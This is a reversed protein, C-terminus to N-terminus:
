KVRLEAQLRRMAEGLADDAAVQIDPRVGVGQWNTNTIPNVSKATVSWLVFHDHIPLYDFPHAGGGSTEGVITARGLAQLDYALAEAASFTKPSILVYVPKDAGFRDGPVYSQTFRQTLKRSPRDYTGTLPQREAEFLYSAVLNAMDGVGGGNQRLDIILGDTHAVTNMAASVTDGGMEIPAFVRLDVLGINDELRAIKEVGFNLHAGYYREMEDDAFGPGDDSQPSVKPESYEVNLHGDGTLDQLMQSLASAYGDGDSHASFAGTEHVTRLSSATAMGVEADVYETELHHIVAAIVMDKDASSIQDALGLPTACLTIALIAFVSRIM